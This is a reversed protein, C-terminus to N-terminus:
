KRAVYLVYNRTALASARKPIISPDHSQRVAATVDGALGPAFGRIVCGALKARRSSEPLNAWWIEGRKM